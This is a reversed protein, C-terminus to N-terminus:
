FHGAPADTPPQGGPPTPTEGVTGSAGSELPFTVRLRTGVGRISRIRLVGGSSRAREAMRLLGPSAEPTKLAHDVVFGHGDDELEAFLGDGSMGFRLHLATPAAHRLANAIGEQLIRYLALTQPPRLTGGWGTSARHVEIPIGSGESVRRAQMEIAPIVGLEELEPPSLGRGIRGVEELASRLESRVEGFLAPTPPMREAVHLRLLASSLLQATGDLLEGSVRKRENEEAELIQAALVEQRRCGTELADLMRNLRDVVRHMEPDALTPRPVRAELEGEEVRRVVTGVDRLPRLALHVLVANAVAVLIVGLALWGKVRDDPVSRALLWGSVAAGGLLLTGTVVIRGYLPVGLV